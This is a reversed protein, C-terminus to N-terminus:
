ISRKSVGLVNIPLVIVNFFFNSTKFVSFKKFFGLKDTKQPCHNKFHVVYQIEGFEVWFSMNTGGGFKVLSSMKQGANPVLFHKPLFYKHGFDKLISVIRQKGPTFRQFITKFLFYKFTPYMGFNWRFRCMSPISFKTSFSWPIFFETSFSMDPLDFEVLFSMHWLNNTNRFFGHSSSFKDLNKLHASALLFEVQFSMHWFDARRLRFFNGKIWGLVVYRPPWFEM